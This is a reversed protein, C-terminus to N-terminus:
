FTDDINTLNSVQVTFSTPSESFSSQYEPLNAYRAKIRPIAQSLTTVGPVIDLWCPPACDTLHLVALREPLPQKRGILMAMGTFATFILSLALILIFLRRM